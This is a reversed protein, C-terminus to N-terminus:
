ENGVEVMIRSRAKLAEQRASARRRNISSEEKAGPGDSLHRALTRVTPFRFLDAIPVGSHLRRQLEEHMLILLLSHGGLDFFIDNVGVTDLKLFERWVEAITRELATQPAAFSVAMAPRSSTAAPLAKRDVKGNAGLPMSDLLVFQSPLMYEPLRGRLFERLEETTTTENTTLYAIVRHEDAVVAAEGVAPHHALAMEIEGLEIRYGRIKVQQDRRGLFELVGNQLYRALDGTAYLRAGTEFPHPVFREATQSASNRYGRAIGEGGIYLEGVVGIPVPQLLDDLVYTQVNPIPRGIPVTTMGDQPACKYVTAWVTGETPGYENFLDAHSTTEFHRAPLEPLCPEGAVIVCSLSTLRNSSPQRLLLSYVSPLCLLHSVQEKEILAAFADPEFRTPSLVLKGGTCLTWFIGAVSSDFFFPSVLMFSRVPEGYYVFRASTSHVLNRQTVEVGKPGGTSGSTYIVYALNEASQRIEPNQKSEPPQRVLERQTLLLEIGADKL